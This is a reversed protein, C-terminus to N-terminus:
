LTLKKDKINYRQTAKVRKQTPVTQTYTTIL